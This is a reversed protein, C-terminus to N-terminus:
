CFVSLSGRVKWRFRDTPITARLPLPLFERSIAVKQQKDHHGEWAMRWDPALIPDDGFFSKYM